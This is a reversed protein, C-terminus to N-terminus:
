RPFVYRGRPLVATAVASAAPLQLPPPPLPQSLCRCRCCCAAVAASPPLPLSATAPVAAAAAPAAAEQPPTSPGGCAATGLAVLGEAKQVLEESNRETQRWAEGLQQLQPRIAAPVAPLRTGGVAGGEELAQLLAKFRNRAVDLEAIAAQNGRLALQASKAIQQSLTQLESSASGQLTADVAQRGQHVLLGASTAALIAFVIGLRRLRSTLSGETEAAAPASRPTGIDIITSSETGAVDPTTENKSGFLKLAM